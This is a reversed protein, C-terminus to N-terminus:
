DQPGGSVEVAAAQLPQVAKNIVSEEILQSVTKGQLAAFAQVALLKAPTIRAAIFATKADM